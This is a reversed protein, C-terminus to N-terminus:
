SVQDPLWQSPAARRSEHLFSASWVSVQKRGGGHLDLKQRKRGLESHSWVRWLTDFDAGAIGIRRGLESRIRGDEALTTGLYGMSTSVPGSPLQILGDANV